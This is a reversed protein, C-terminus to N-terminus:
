IHILSLYYISNDTLGETPNSSNETYVIKQGNSFGHNEITVVGTSTNVGTSTYSKPNVILKRNYDNYSINFASTIGPNVDLTIDHGIHIGHSEGTSVTVTNRNVSGTIVSYNTKLSHYVGSGLGIFGLTTVTDIGVVGEFIGTSGLGVRATALGILNNAVKAVFLNTGDAITTGIGANVHNDCM